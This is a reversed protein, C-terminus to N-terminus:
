ENKNVEENEELESNSTLGAIFSHGLEQWDVFEDKKVLTEPIDKGQSWMVRIAIDIFDNKNNTKICFSKMCILAGKM